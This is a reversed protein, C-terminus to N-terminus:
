QYKSWLIKYEEYMASEEPTMDTFKITNFPVGEANKYNQIEARRKM